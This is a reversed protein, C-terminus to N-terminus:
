YDKGEAVLIMHLNDLMNGFELLDEETVYGDDLLLELEKEEESDSDVGWNSTCMVGHNYEWQEPILEGYHYLVHAVALHWTLCNAWEDGDLTANYENMLYENVM